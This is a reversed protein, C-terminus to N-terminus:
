DDVAAVLRGALPEVVELVRELEVAAVGDQVARLHTRLSQVGGLGDRLHLLHQDLADDSAAAKRRCARAHGFRLTSPPTMIRCRSPRHAVCARAHHDYAAAM